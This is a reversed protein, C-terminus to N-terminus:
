RRARRSTLPRVVFRLTHNWVDVADRGSTEWSTARNQFLFNMRQGSTLEADLHLHASSYSGRIGGFVSVDHGLFPWPSTHAFYADNDWRIRGGFVGLRWRSALYDAAIWQSSAGPGIAAGIVQGRHTYGHPVSRSVYFTGGQEARFTAPSQEVNSLETQLRLAGDPGVSRTWQLGLTYGQSDNPNELFGRFSAPLRYRAWEGYIEAGAEPLVWRGFLSMVQAREPRGSDSPEDPVTWRTLVDASHSLVGGIGRSPAYVARAIGVTLDPEWAPRLTAVLASLSRTDNAQLTDFYPSEHLRGIMWRAELRGFLTRAPSSTRLFLHPIGPANNSMVLANRIGPGWWQDETSAGGAVPGATVALSSQGPHIAAIQDSGFRLPLDIRATGTRWPPFLREQESDRSLMAFDDNRAYVAEPALTASISGYEFRIGAMLWASVGRGAWLAGDNLSFPIESNWAVGLEPAVLAWRPRAQGGSLPPTLTSPSRILYGDTSQGDRIQAMRAGDEITSGLTTLPVVPGMGSTDDPTPTQAALSTGALVLLVVLRTACSSM